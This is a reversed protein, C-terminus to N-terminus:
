TGEKRKGRKKTAKGGVQREKTYPERGPHDARTVLEVVVANKASARGPRKPKPTGGSGGDPPVSAALDALAQQAVTLHRMGWAILKRKTPLAADAGSSSLNDLHGQSLQAEEAVRKRAPAFADLFRKTPSDM